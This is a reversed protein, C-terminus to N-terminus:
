LHFFFKTYPPDQNAIVAGGPRRPCPKPEGSHQPSQFSWPFTVSIRTRLSEPAAAGVPEPARLGIDQSTQDGLCTIHLSFLLSGRSAARPRRTISTLWCFLSRTLKAAAWLFLKQSRWGRAWRTRNGISSQVEQPAVASRYFSSLLHRRVYVPLYMSVLFEARAKLLHTHLCRISFPHFPCKRKM